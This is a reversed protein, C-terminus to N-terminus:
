QIMGKQDETLSDFQLLLLRTVIRSLNSAESCVNDSVVTYSLDELFVTVDGCLIYNSTGSESGGFEVYNFAIGGLSIDVIAGVNPSCGAYSGTRLSFRSHKRRDASSGSQTYQSPENHM